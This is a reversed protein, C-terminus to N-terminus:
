AFVEPPPLHNVIVEDEPLTCTIITGNKEGRSIDLSAGIIRARYQMIRIGMGNQRQEMDPIGSGNDIVQLATKQQIRTFTVKIYNANGHKIANTIAEQVIRYVHTVTVENSVSVSIDDHFDCQVCFMTAVSHTLQQLAHRLGDAQIDVPSLGKALHHVMDTGQSLLATIDTVDKQTINKNEDLKHELAKCGFAIGTLHQGLGDHLDHGIRLQERGEIEVVEKELKRQESIDRVVCVVGQVDADSDCLCSSSFLVPIEKGDKTYCWTEINYVPEKKCLEHISQIGSQDMRFFTEFPHGLIDQNDCCMLRLAASNVKQVTGHENVLLLAESMTEILENAATAPSLSFLQYKTIAYVIGAAWVLYVMDNVHPVQALDWESLLGTLTNLIFVIIICRIIINTQKQKIPNTNKERYRFLYIIFTIAVGYAYFYYVYTWLSSTNLITDWGFVYTHSEDIQLVAYETFQKYLLVLPLGFIVAYFLKSRLASRNETFVLVFCLFVSAFPIGGVAGINVFLKATELSVYRSHIVTFSLSWLAFCSFLVACVVSLLSRPHKIFIYGILYIYTISCFFHLFSLYKLM